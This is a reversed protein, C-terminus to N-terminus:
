LHSLSDLFYTTEPENGLVVIKTTQTIMGRYRAPVSASHEETIAEGFKGGYDEGNDGEFKFEKRKEDVAYLKGTVNLITDTTTNGIKGQLNNLSQYQVEAKRRLLGGSHWELGLGYQHSVHVGIWEHLARIPAPGLERAIEKVRKTEILDFVTSSAEEIPSTAYIGMERPVTVVVGVSSAFSYGYGLEMRSSQVPKKQKPRGAETLASYVAGFFDQFRLWAEAIGPLTVRESENLIRYRYVELELDAAVDLYESELRRKLKELARINALMSRPPTDGVGVVAREHEAILANTSQIRDQLEVLASM